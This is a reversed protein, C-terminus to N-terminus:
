YAPEPQNTPELRSRLLPPTTKIRAQDLEEGDLFPHMWLLRHHATASAIISDLRGLKEYADEFREMFRPLAGPSGPNHRGVTVDRRHLEGRDRAGEQM